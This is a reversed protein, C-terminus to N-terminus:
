QFADSQLVHRWLLHRTLLEILHGDREVTCVVQNVFIGNSDHNMGITIVQCKWTEASLPLLCVSREPIDYAVFM